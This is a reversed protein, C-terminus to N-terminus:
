IFWISHCFSFIHCVEKLKQKLREIERERDRLQLSYEQEMKKKASRADQVDCFAKTLQGSLYDIHSQTSDLNSSYQFYLRRCLQMAIPSRCEPCTPM